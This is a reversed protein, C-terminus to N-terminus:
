FNLTGNVDRSDNVVFTKNIHEEGGDILFLSNAMTDVPLDLRDLRQTLELSHEHVTVFFSHAQLCQITKEPDEKSKTSSSSRILLYDLYPQTHVGQKRLKVVPSILVKSSVRLAKYLCFCLARIQFQNKGICFHLHDHYKLSHLYAEMLDM